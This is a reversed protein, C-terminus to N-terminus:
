SPSISALGVRGWAGVVICIGVLAQFALCPLSLLYCFVCFFFFAFFTSDKDEDKKRM